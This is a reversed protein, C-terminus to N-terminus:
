GARTESIADRSDSNQRLKRRQGTALRGIPFVFFLSEVMNEKKRIAEAVARKIFEVDELTYKTQLPTFRPALWNSMTVRPDKQFTFGPFAAEVINLVGNTSKATGDKNIGNWHPGWADLFFQEADIIKIGEQKGPFFSTLINDVDGYQECNVFIAAPHQLLQLLSPPMKPRGNGIVNGCHVAFTNEGKYDDAASISFAAVTANAIGFERDEERHRWYHVTRMETGVRDSNGKMSKRKRWRGDIEAKGVGDMRLEREHWSFEKASPEEVDLVMVYREGRKERDDARRIHMRLYTDAEKWSHCIRKARQSATLFDLDKLNKEKRQKDYKQARATIWAM